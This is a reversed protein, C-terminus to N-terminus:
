SPMRGRRLTAPGCDVLRRSSWGPNFKGIGVRDDHDIRGRQFQLTSEHLDQADRSTADPNPPSNLLKLALGITQHPGPM